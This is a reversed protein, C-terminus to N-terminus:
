SARPREPVGSWLRAISTRQRVGCPLTARSNTWVTGHDSGPTPHDNLNMYESETFTAKVTYNGSATNAPDWYTVAPGTVAHLAEGDKALRANELKEGRGAESADIVGKWGAVKIGGDKV